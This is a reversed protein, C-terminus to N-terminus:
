WSRPSARKSLHPLGVMPVALSATVILMRPLRGAAQSMGAGLLTIFLRLSYVWKHSNIGM